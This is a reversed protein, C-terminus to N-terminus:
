WEGISSKSGARRLHHDISRLLRERNLPKTVYDNFGCKLTNVREHSVGYATQAIIPIVKNFKRIERTAAVGDMIPLKLDMLVLDVSQDLSLAKVAADGDGAYVIDVSTRGLFAKFVEVNSVEDEVVLIKERVM